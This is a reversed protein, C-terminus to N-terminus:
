GMSAGNRAMCILEATIGAAILAGPHNHTPMATFTGLGIAERPDDTVWGAASCRMPAGNGASAYPRPEPARLWKKFGKGYGAHPYAECYNLIKNRLHVYMHEIYDGNEKVEDWCDLFAAAVAATCVTDDTFFNKEGFLEFDKSKLNDHEYISGVIDGIIAGKM